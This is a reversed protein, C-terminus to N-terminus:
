HIGALWQGENNKILDTSQNSHLGQSYIEKQASIKGQTNDISNAIHLIINNSSQFLGKENNFTNTTLHADKQSQIQGMQNNFINTKASWSGLSGMWGSENLIDNANLNQSYQGFLRGNRNDLQNILQIDLNNLANIEGQTNILNNTKILTNENSTLKGDQNLM